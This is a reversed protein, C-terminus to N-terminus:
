HKRPHFPSLIRFTIMRTQPLTKTMNAAFNEDQTQAFTDYDSIMIMMMNGAVVVKKLSFCKEL